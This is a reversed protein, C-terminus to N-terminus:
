PQAAQNAAEASLSPIVRALLLDLLGPKYLHCDRVITELLDQSQLLQVESNLEEETVDAPTYDTQVPAAPSVVAIFDRVTAAPPRHYGNVKNGYRQDEM